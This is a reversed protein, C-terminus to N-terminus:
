LKSSWLFWKLGPALVTEARQSTESLEDVWGVLVNIWSLLFFFMGKEAPLILRWQCLVCHSKGEPQWPQRSLRLPPPVSGNWKALASGNYCPLKQDFMQSINCDYHLWTSSKLYCSKYSCAGNRRCHTPHNGLWSHANRLSVPELTKYAITIHECCEMTDWSVCVGVLQPLDSESKNKPALQKGFKAIQFRSVRDMFAYKPSSM